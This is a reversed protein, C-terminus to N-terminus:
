LRGDAVVWLVRAIHKLAKRTEPDAINEDLWSSIGSPKLDLFAQVAADAKVTAAEQADAADIVAKAAQADLEAQTFEPEITNGEAEWAIVQQYEINDSLVPVEVIGNVTVYKLGHYKVSQIEM